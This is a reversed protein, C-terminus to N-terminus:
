GQQAIFSICCQQTNFLAFFPGHTTYITGEEGPCVTFLRGSGQLKTYLGKFVGNRRSHWTVAYMYICCTFADTNMCQKTNLQSRVNAYACYYSPQAAKVVRSRTWSQLHNVIKWPHTSNSQASSYTWISVGLKYIFGLIQFAIGPTLM